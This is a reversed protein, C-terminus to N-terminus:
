ITIKEGFDKQDKYGYLHTLYQSRGIEWNLEYQRKREDYVILPLLPPQVNKRYYDSMQKVDQWFNYEWETKRLVEVEQLCLDDKSIYLIKGADHNKAIMYTLLQYKHHEYGLFTGNEGRNNHSWFALSNVSKIEAISEPIPQNGYEKELGDILSLAYKELIEDNENLKFEQLWRQVRGRAEDWNVLGGIIYDIYGLIKLHDETEPIEVYVQKGKLVGAMALARGVIWEFLKGADFIRLIREDFPNSVPVGKMKLWRDIMAKGVDSASIYNREKPENVKGVSQQAVQNWINQITLHKM